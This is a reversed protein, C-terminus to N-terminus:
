GDLARRLRDAKWRTEDYEEDVESRVTIGGGTGLTFRYSSGAAEAVLCRIVVGLDARGDASIWGFAGAYVGRPGSEVAEIIQ